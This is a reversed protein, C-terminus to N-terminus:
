ELSREHGIVRQQQVEESPRVPLEREEAMMWDPDSVQQILANVIWRVRERYIDSAEDMRTYTFDVQYMTAAQRTASWQPFLIRGGLKELERFVWDVITGEGDPAPHTQVMEIVDRPSLTEAQQWLAAERARREQEQAEFYERAIKESGGCSTLLVAVLIAAVGRPLM